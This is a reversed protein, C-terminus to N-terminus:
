PKRLWSPHSSHIPSPLHFFSLAFVDWSTTWSGFPSPRKELFVAKEKGKPFGLLGSKLDFNQGLQNDVVVSPDFSMSITDRQIDGTGWDPEKDICIGGEALVM